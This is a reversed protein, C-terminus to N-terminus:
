IADIVLLLPVQSGTGLFKTVAFLIVRVVCSGQSGAPNPSSHALHTQAGRRCRSLPCQSTVLPLLSQCGARGWTAPRRSRPSQRALSVCVCSRRREKSSPRATLACILVSHRSKEGDAAQSPQRHSPCHPKRGERRSTRYPLGHHTIIVM